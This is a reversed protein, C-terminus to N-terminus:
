VKSTWDDRCHHALLHERLLMPNVISFGPSSGCSSARKFAGLDIYVRNDAVVPQEFINHGHFILPDDDAFDGMVLFPLDLGQVTMEESQYLAAKISDGRDPDGGLLIRQDSPLGYRTTDATRLHEPLKAHAVYFVGNPSNVELVMASTHFFRELRIKVSKKEELSLDFLWQLGNKKFFIEQEHDLSSGQLQRMLLNYALVEHNGISAFFWPENLLGLTRESEPGKDVLDGVCFLRDKAFDFEIDKLTSMLLTYSGHLDGVVYDNGWPNAEIRAKIKLPPM